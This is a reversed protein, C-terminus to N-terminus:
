SGSKPAARKKIPLSMAYLYPCRATGCQPIRTPATASRRGRKPLSMASDRMAPDARELKLNEIGREPKLAPKKTELFGENGALLTQALNMEHVGCNAFAALHHNWGFGPFLGPNFRAVNNGDLRFPIPTQNQHPLFFCFRGVSFQPNMAAFGSMQDDGPKAAGNRAFLDEFHQFL